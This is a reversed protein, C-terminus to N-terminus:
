ILMLLTIYHSFVRGKLKSDDQNREFLAMVIECALDLQVSYNVGEANGRTKNRRTTILTRLLHHTSQSVLVGGVEASADV